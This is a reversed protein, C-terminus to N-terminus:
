LFIIGLIGAPVLYLAFLHLRGGRIVRMLLRLCIYGSIIASAIGAALAPLPVSQALNGMDHLSLVLAGLIAPISLLFSFEGAEARGVGAFLAASITIGSRSIGPLVGIGQAIGTIIGARIGPQAPQPSSNKPRRRKEFIRGAVLILATVLLFAAVIRPRSEFNLDKLLIGLTGTCFTAIIIAIVLRLLPADSHTRRRQFFRVLAALIDLIKRRFIIIIVFLTALHLLVDFLRPIDELGFLNKLLALHGSSSVPLFETVGQLCGFLVAQPTTM